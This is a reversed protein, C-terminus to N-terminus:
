ECFFSPPRTLKRRSTMRELAASLAQAHRGHQLAADAFSADCREVIARAGEVDGEELAALALRDWATVRLHTSRARHALRSWWREADARRGALGLTTACWRAAEERRGRESQPDLALTEYGALAADLDGNRRALHAVELRARDRLDGRGGNEVLEEFVGQARSDGAARLLEGARFLARGWCDKGPSLEASLRLWAEAARLRIRDREGLPTGILERELARARRSLTDHVRPARGAAAPAGPSRADFRAWLALLAV